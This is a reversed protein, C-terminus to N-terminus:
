SHQEIAQKLWRTAEQYDQAVGLGKKYLMGLQFKAKNHGQQAALRYWKAAEQYDQAIGEGNAYMQALQFQAKSHEKKCCPFDM